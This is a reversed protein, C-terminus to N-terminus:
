DPYFSFRPRSALPCGSIIISIDNKGKIIARFPDTYEEGIIVKDRENLLIFLGSLAQTSLIEPRAIHNKYIFYAARTDFFNNSM